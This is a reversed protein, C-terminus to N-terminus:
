TAGYFGSGSKAYAVLSPAPAFRPGVTKSLEELREVIASLGRADAYRALGGRFPPFGTGMIMALDLDAPGAIVKEELCRSAENVMGLICRDLIESAEMPESRMSIGLVSYIEPDLSKVKKSGEYVYFGRGTKKGLWKKEILKGFADPALMRDGFAAKLIGAVKEGVDLGVEDILEIPGMPMGFDLLVSDIRDMGVGSMLLTAAEALYPMLLRNVLFGPSDKVVVPMKGLQKCAQYTTIISGDSSQSGRIVEVLPMRHVPNFFHMGVFRDPRVLATQMESISLSSTNSAIVAQDSVHKELEALVSKKVDMKEIVAEVVLEAKRFGVYSLTPTILNLKQDFQRKTIARKKLSKQFLSLASAIGLELAPQAIDKMEVAIGKDAFLQAIGGGMVGAGVVGASQLKRDAADAAAVTSVGNSKKIAETMFFLQILNKSVETAAVRGFGEAERILAADREAGELIKRYGTGVSEIVDIAELVAPYKGKTKALVGERAKKFIVKRGVWTNEMLSGAVGGIGGLKPERGIRAGSRLRGIEKKIWSLANGEFDEKELLADALGAKCAKEGTLTKGALILELSQAIGIKWPMRVCGGMGPIIGLLTEPLGIRAQSSKSMLIATSALSLECGGGMCTGDIAVVRPFPLDEWLDILKQGARALETAEQATKASQILTIDAGAIFNGKKGSTLLLVDIEASEKKLEVLLDAFESMVLRNFKNVKEGELDFVLHAIKISSDLRHTLRFAKGTFTM